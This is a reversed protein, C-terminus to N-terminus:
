FEFIFEVYEQGKITKNKTNRGRTPINKIYLLNLRLLVLIIFGNLKKM